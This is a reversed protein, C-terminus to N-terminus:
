WHIAAAEPDVDGASLADLYIKQQNFGPGTTNATATIIEADQLHLNNDEDDAIFTLNNRWPGLSQPATYAAAKDVFSKAEDINKAPVRGIGIDLLNILLGPISM